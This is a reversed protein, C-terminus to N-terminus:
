TGIGVVVYCTSKDNYRDNDNDNKKNKIILDDSHLEIQFTM